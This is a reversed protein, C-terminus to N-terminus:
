RERDYPAILLQRPEPVSVSAVQNVPTESGYYDVTVRDLIPPARGDRATRTAFDHTM